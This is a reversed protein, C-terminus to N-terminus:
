LYWKTRDTWDFKGENANTNAMDFESGFQDKYRLSKASGKIDHRVNWATMNEVVIPNKRDGGTLYEAEFGGRGAISVRAGQKGIVQTIHATEFHIFSPLRWRLAESIHAAIKQLAAAQAPTARDDIYWVIAKEGHGRVLHLGNLKVRGYHGKQINFSAISWCYPHSARSHFNCGCPVSCTCAESLEGKIVWHPEKGRTSDAAVLITPLLFISLVAVALGRPRM